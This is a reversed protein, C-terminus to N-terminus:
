NPRRRCRIISTDAFGPSTLSKFVLGEIHPQREDLAELCGKLDRILPLTQIHPSLYLRPLLQWRQPFPMKRLLEGDRKLFDFVYLKDEGKIWEADVVNWGTTPTFVRRIEAVMPEPMLKKHQAGHRNFVWIPEDRDAPVHIQARHGHIKLQAVWGSDLIRSIAEPVPRIGTKPHMPRIFPSPHAVTRRRTFPIWEITEPLSIVLTARM